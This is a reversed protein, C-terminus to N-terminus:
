RPWVGSLARPIAADVFSPLHGVAVIVAAVAVIVSSISALASVRAWRQTAKAVKISIAAHALEYTDGGRTSPFKLSDLDRLLDDLSKDIVSYRDTM